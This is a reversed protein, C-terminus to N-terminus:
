TSQKLAAASLNVVFPDGPSYIDNFTAAEISRRVVEDCGCDPASAMIARAAGLAYREGSGRAWFTRKPIPGLSLSEDLDWIRGDRNVLICWIGFSWTLEGTEKHGIDYETLCKGIATAVDGETTLSSTAKSLATRCVNLALMSGTFGLAWDQFFVWPPVGSSIVSDHALTYGTNSGAVTSGNWNLAAITTM